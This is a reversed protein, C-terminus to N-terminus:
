ESGLYGEWSKDVMSSHPVAWGAVAFEGGTEMVRGRRGM